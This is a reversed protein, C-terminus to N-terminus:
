IPECPCDAAYTHSNPGLDGARGRGGVPHAWPSEKSVYRTPDDDGPLVILVQRLLPAGSRPMRWALVAAALAQERGTPALVTARCRCVQM